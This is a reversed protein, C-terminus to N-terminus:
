GLGKGRPVIAQCKHQSATEDMKQRAIQYVLYLKHQHDQMWESVDQQTQQPAVWLVSHDPLM